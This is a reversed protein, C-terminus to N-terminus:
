SSFIPISKLGYDSPHLIDGVVIRAEGTLHVYTKNRMVRVKRWLSLSLVALKPAV